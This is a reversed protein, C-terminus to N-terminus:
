GDAALTDLSIGEPVDLHALLTEYHTRLDLDGLDYEFVETVIRSCLTPDDRAVRMLLRLDRTTPATETGPDTDAIAYAGLVAARLAHRNVTTDVADNLLADAVADVQGSRADFRDFLEPRLTADDLSRPESLGVLGHSDAARAAAKRNKRVAEYSVDRRTRWEDASYGGLTTSLYDMTESLSCGVDTLAAGQETVASIGADFADTVTFEALDGRYVVIHDEDGPHYAYSASVYCAGDSFLLVHCEVNGRPREAGTFPDNYAHVSSWADSPHVVFGEFVRPLGTSDHSQRTEVTDFQAMHSAEILEEVRLSDARFWDHDAVQQLTALVDILKAAPTQHTPM